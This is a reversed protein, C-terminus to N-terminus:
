DNALPKRLFTFVQKYPWLTPGETRSNSSYNQKGDMHVRLHDEAAASLM